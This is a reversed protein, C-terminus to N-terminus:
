HWAPTTPVKRICCMVPRHWKTRCHMAYTPHLITYMIGVFSCLGWYILMLLRKTTNLKLLLTSYGAFPESVPVNSGHDQVTTLINTQFGVRHTLWKCTIPLVAHGRLPPPRMSHCMSFLNKRIHFALPTTRVSLNRRTNLTSTPFRSSFNATHRDTM